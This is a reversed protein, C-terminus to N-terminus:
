IPNARVLAVAVALDALRDLGAQPFAVVDHRDPGREAALVAGLLGVHCDVVDLDRDKVLLPVAACKYAIRRSRGNQWYYVSTAMEMNLIQGGAGTQRAHVTDNAHVGTTQRARRGCSCRRRFTDIPQTMGPQHSAGVVLVLVDVIRLACTALDDTRAMSQPACPLTEDRRRTGSNYM